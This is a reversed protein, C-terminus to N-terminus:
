STQEAGTDATKCSVVLKRDKLYSDFWQLCCGRLGYLEMKRLIAGHELSDLAKSLDLFIGATLKKQEIGKTIIAVLEGVAQDCAHNKQFGYQSAYLQHTVCLFTYTRHYMAKELIKSITLLLSIPQYNNTEDKSKGKHLPIVKSTKMKDPFTGEM